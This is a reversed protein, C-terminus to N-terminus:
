KKRVYFSKRYCYPSSSCSLGYYEVRDKGFDEEVDMYQRKEETDEVGLHWYAGGDGEGSTVLGEYSIFFHVDKHNKALLAVIFPPYIDVTILFLKVHGDTGDENKTKYIHCPNLDFKNVTIDREYAEYKSLPAHRPVGLKEFDFVTGDGRKNPIVYEKLVNFVRENYAYKKKELEKLRTNDYESYENNEIEAEYERETERDVATIRCTCWEHLIRRV